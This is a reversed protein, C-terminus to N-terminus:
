LTPNNTTLDSKNTLLDSTVTPVPYTEITKGKSDTRWAKAFQWPSDKRDKIVTYYNWFLGNTTKAILTRSMPYNTLFHRSFYLGRQSDESGPLQGIKRVGQVFKVADM